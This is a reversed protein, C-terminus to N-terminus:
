NTIDFDYIYMFKFLESHNTKFYQIYSEVSLDKSLKILRFFQIKSGFMNMINEINSISNYGSYIIINLCFITM